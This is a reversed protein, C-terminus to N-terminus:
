FWLRWSTQWGGLFIIYSHLPAFGSVRLYSNDPPKPKTCGSVGPPLVSEGDGEVEFDDDNICVDESHIFFFIVYQLILFM